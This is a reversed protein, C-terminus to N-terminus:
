TLLHELVAFFSGILGDWLISAIFFILAGLNADIFPKGTPVYQRVFYINIGETLWSYDSALISPYNLFTWFGLAFASISIGVFFTKRAKKKSLGLHKAVLLFSVLTIVWILTLVVVGLMCSMDRYLLYHLLLTPIFNSLGYGVSLGVALPILNLLLNKKALKKRVTVM